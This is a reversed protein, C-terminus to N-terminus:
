ITLARSRCSIMRSWVSYHFSPMSGKFRRYHTVAAFVPDVHMSGVTRRPKRVVNLSSIFAVKASIRYPVVRRSGPSNKISSSGEVFGWVYSRRRWSMAVFPLRERISCQVWACLHPNSDVCHLPRELVGVLFQVFDSFSDWFEYEEDVNFSLCICLWPSIPVQMKRLVLMVIRHVEVAAVHAIGLGDTEGTAAEIVQVATLWM